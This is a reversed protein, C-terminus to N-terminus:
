PVARDPAVSVPPAADTGPVNVKVDGDVVGAVPVLLTLMVNVGLSVM